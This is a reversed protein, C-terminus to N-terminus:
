FFNDLKDKRQLELLAYEDNKKQCDLFSLWTGAPMQWNLTFLSFVLFIKLIPIFTVISVARQWKTWVVSKMRQEPTEM